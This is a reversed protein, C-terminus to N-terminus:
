LQSFAATSYRAMYSSTNCPGYIRPVGSRARHFPHSTPFRRVAVGPCRSKIEGRTSDPVLSWPAPEEGPDCHFEKRARRAPIKVAPGRGKPPQLRGVCCSQGRPGARAPRRNSGLGRSLSCIEGAQGSDTKLKGSEPFARRGRSRKSQSDAM